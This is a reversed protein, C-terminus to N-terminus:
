MVEPMLAVYLPGQSNNYTHDLPLSTSGLSELHRQLDELEQGLGPRDSTFLHNQEVVESIRELLQTVSICSSKSM